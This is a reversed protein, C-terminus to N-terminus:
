GAPGHLGAASLRERDLLILMESREGSEVLVAGEAYPLPGRGVRGASQLWTRSMPKTRGRLIDEVADVRLGRLEGGCEVIVVAGPGADGEGEAGIDLIPVVTGRLDMLGLVADGVIGRAILDEPLPCVEEVSELEFGFSSPGIRLRLFSREEEEEHRERVVDTRGLARVGRVIGLREYLAAVHALLVHRARGFSLVGAWPSGHEAGPLAPLDAREDEVYEQTEVLSDVEVAVEAGDHALFLLKSEREAAPLGLVGRLDLVARVEGRLDVVGRCHEFYSVGGRVALGAQIELVDAMPFALEHEAVRAVIVRTRPRADAGEAPDRTETRPVGPLAGLIGPALVQVHGARGPARLVGRVVAGREIELDLSRLDKCPVRLVEGTRDFVVGLHGDGSVLIAVRREADERAPAVGLLRRADVVPIVEGRLSFIGEVIEGSLPVPTVEEPHPIVERIHEAPLAYEQGGVFFTGFLREDAAAEMAPDVPGYAEAPGSPGRDPEAPERERSAEPM